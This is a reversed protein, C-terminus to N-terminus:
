ISYSVTYQQKGSSLHKTSFMLLVSVVRLGFPTAFFGPFEAAFCFVPGVATQLHPLVKVRGGGM